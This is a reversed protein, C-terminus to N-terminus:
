PTPAPATSPAPAYVLALAEPLYGYLDFVLRQQPNADTVGPTKSTEIMGSAARVLNEVTYDLGETSACGHYAPDNDAFATLTSDLQGIVGAAKASDFPEAVVLPRLSAIDGALRQAYAPVQAKAAVCDASKDQSL